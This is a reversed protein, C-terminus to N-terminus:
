RNFRKTRAMKSIHKWRKKPNASAAKDQKRQNYEIEKKMKLYNKLREDSLNGQDMAHIVHCGPESQHSCNSFRCKKSLEKIDSFTDELGEETCWLAVERMGPTDIVIAGNETLLMQKRSTTHRGRSDKGRVSTVALLDKGILANIISSKGVGSSGVFATTIGKSLYTKLQELGEGTYTSLFLTETQYFGRKLESLVAERSSLLDSKNMILLPTIKSESCLTVYREMRHINYNADLGTVICLIDINTAIVQEEIQKGASKRSLVTKRPLLHHIIAHSDAPFEQVCVWDGVAPLQSKTESEHIFKGSLKALFQGKNTIVDYYHPYQSTIRGPVYSTNSGKYQTEFYANWGFDTITNMTVKEDEHDM